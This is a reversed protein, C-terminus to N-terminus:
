LYVYKYDGYYKEKLVDKSITEVLLNKYYCVGNNAKIKNSLGNKNLSDIGLVNSCNKCLSKVCSFYYKKNVVIPQIQESICRLRVNEYKDKDIWGLNKGIKWYKIITNENLSYKKSLENMSTFLDNDYELCIKKIQNTRANRECENWDVKQLDFIDNLVSDYISEKIHEVTSPECDIRIVTIEHEEALKDKLKDRELGEIDKKSSKYLNKGHGLGGDMELIYKNNNYEFYFDFRNPKVWDPMYEREVNQVELQKLMEFAFKNPFSIKDSCSCCFGKDRYLNSISIKRDSKRQCDPCKLYVKKSSRKTHTYADEIDYFYPIMWPDTTAIDNIGTVVMKPFNGCM